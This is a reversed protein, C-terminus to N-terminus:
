DGGLDDCSMMQTQEKSLHKVPGPYRNIISHEKMPEMAIEPNKKWIHFHDM